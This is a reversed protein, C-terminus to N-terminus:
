DMPEFHLNKQQEPVPFVIRKDIEDALTKTLIVISLALILQLFITKLHISDKIMFQQRIRPSHSFILVAIAIILSDPQNTLFFLDSFHIASYILELLVGISFLYYLAQSLWGKFFITLGAFFLISYFVWYGLSSKLVIEYLFLLGPNQKQFLYHSIETELYRVAIFVSFVCVALKLFFFPSKIIAKFKEM